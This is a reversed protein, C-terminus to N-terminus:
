DDSGVQAGADALTRSIFVQKTATDAARDDPCNAATERKVREYAERTERDERLVDRFRVRRDCFGIPQNNRPAPSVRPIL